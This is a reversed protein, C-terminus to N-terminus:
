CKVVVVSWIMSMFIFELSFLNMKLYLILIHQNVIGESVEIL